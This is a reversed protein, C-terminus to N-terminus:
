RATEPRAFRKVLDEFDSVDLTKRGSPARPIGSRVVRGNYVVAERRTQFLRGSTAPAAGSADCISSRIPPRSRSMPRASVSATSRSGPWRSGTRPSCARRSRNRARCRSWTACRRATTSPVREAPLSLDVKLPGGAEDLLAKTEDGIWVANGDHHDVWAEVVRGKPVLPRRRAIEDRVTTLYLRNVSHSRFRGHAAAGDPLRYRARGVASRRAAEVGADIPLVGRPTGLRLDGAADGACERVVTGDIRSAVALCMATTLPLARHCTGMSIVRAVIDV